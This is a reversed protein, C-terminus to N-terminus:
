LNISANYPMDSKSKHYRQLAYAWFLVRIRKQQNSVILRCGIEHNNYWVSASQPFFRLSSCLMRPEWFMETAM